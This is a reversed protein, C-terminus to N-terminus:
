KNESCVKKKGCFTIGGVQSLHNVVDMVSDVEVSSDPQQSLGVEAKQDVGSLQRSGRLHSLHSKILDLSSFMSETTCQSYTAM